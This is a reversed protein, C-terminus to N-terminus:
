PENVIRFVDTRGGTHTSRCNFVGNAMATFAADVANAIKFPDFRSFTSVSKVLLNFSGLGNNNKFTAFWSVKSVEGGEPSRGTPFSVDRELRDDMQIPSAEISMDGVVRLKAGF